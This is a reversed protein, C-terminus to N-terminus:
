QTEIHFISLNSDERILHAFIFSIIDVVTKDLDMKSPETFKVLNQLSNVFNLAKDSVEISKFLFMNSSSSKISSITKLYRNAELCGASIPMFSVKYSLLLNSLIFYLSGTLISVFILDNTTYQSNIIYLICLILPIILLVYSKM